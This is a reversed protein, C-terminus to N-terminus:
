IMFGLRNDMVSRAFLIVYGRIEAVVDVGSCVAVFEDHLPARYCICDHVMEILLMFM